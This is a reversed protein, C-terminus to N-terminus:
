DGAADEAGEEAEEDVEAEPEVDAEEEPEGVADVAATPAQEVAVDQGAGNDPELIAIAAVKDGEDLRMVTVGSTARGAHESITEIAMRIVIGGASVMMLEESGKVV